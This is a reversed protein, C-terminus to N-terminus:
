LNVGSVETYLTFWGENADTGTIIGNRKNMQSIISGQFEEPATIEVSMVPELLIWMGDDYATIYLFQQMLYLPLIHPSPYTHSLSPSSFLSADHPLSLTICLFSTPLPPFSLSFFIPFIDKVIVFIIVNM